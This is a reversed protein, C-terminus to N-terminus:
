RGLSERFRTVAELNQNPWGIRDWMGNMGKRQLLAEIEAPKYKGQMAAM